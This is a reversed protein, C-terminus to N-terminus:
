GATVTDLHLFHMHKEFQSVADAIVQEKTHGMINYHQPGELLFVEARYHRGQGDKMPPMEPFATDPVAYEILKM